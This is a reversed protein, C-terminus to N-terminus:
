QFPISIKNIIEVFNVLVLATFTLMNAFGRVDLPTQKLDLQTINGLSSRHYIQIIEYNGKSLMPLSTLTQLTAFKWVDMPKREFQM